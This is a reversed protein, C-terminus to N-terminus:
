SIKGNRDIHLTVTVRGDARSVTRNRYTVEEVTLTGGAAAPPRNAVFRLGCKLEIKEKRIHLTIKSIGNAERRDQTWRMENRDPHEAKFLIYHHGGSQRIDFALKSHSGAGEVSIGDVFNRDTLLSRGDAGICEVAIECSENTAEMPAYEEKGCAPLLLASLLLAAAGAKRIIRNM